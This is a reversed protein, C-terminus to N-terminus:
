QLCRSGEDMWGAILRLQPATANNKIRNALYSIVAVNGPVYGKDPVRRDLSPSNDAPVGGSAVKLELGLIPCADPVFIDKVTITCPVGAEAARKRAAKLMHAPVNDAYRVKVQERVKARKEPDAYMKRYSELTRQKTKARFVPDSAYRETFKSM